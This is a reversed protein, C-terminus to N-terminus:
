RIDADFDKKLTNNVFDMVAEISAEDLTSAYSQLTIHFALNKKGKGIKEEDSFEDFLEVKEVSELGLLAQEISGASTKSDVVCAIDRRVPPFNSPARYAFESESWAAELMELNLESYITAADCTKYSPHVVFLEGLKKGNLMMTTARGPHAWELDVGQDFVVSLGLHIFMQELSTKLQFFLDEEKRETSSSLVGLHLEERPLVSGEPLYTKGLEFVQVNRNMRVESELEKMMGSLLTQRMFTTESSLPNAIKVANEVNTFPDTDPVYAYHQAELYGQDSWLDRMWWELSRLTNEKPPNASLPPLTPLVNDFGHLRVIEEILDAGIQVDKTNRYSPVQVTMVGNELSVGFDLSELYDKQQEDSIDVGIKDRVEQTTIQIELPEIKQNYADQVAGACQADPCFKQAMEVAMALAYSCNEPDLSKEYRMSSDSRLGLRTSTKRIAVPDWNACEFVINQTESTVGSDMGGMIGAVSLVKEEDAVVTDNENLEYEEGDLALIKEGARAQRVILMGEIKDADFVHMPQGYGLMIWNTIDVINSIARVGIQELRVMMCMPADSVDINNM